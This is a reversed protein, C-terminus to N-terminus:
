GEPVARELKSDGSVLSIVADAMARAMSRQHGKKSFQPLLLPWLALIWQRLCGM